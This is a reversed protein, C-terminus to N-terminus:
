IKDTIAITDHQMQTLPAAHLAIRMAFTAGDISVTENM